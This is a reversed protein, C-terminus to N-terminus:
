KRPSVGARGALRADFWQLARVLRTRGIALGIAVGLTNFMADLADAQRSATLMAQAFELSVGLAVLLLAIRMHDRANAFLMVAYGSLAAYGLLHELKDVGRFPPPPLDSAPMLSACIVALVLTIWIGLWLRPRHLTRLPLSMGCGSTTARLTNRFRSM